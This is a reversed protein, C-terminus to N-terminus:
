QRNDEELITECCTGLYLRMYFNQCASEKSVERWDGIRVKKIPWFKIKTTFINMKGDGQTLSSTMTDFMRYSFINKRYFFHFNLLSRSKPFSSLLFLLIYSLPSLAFFRSNYFYGKPGYVCEGELQLMSILCAWSVLFPTM